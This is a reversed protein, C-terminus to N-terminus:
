PEGAPRRSGSVRDQHGGTTAIAPALSSGAARPVRLFRDLLIWGMPALLITVFTLLSGFLSYLIVQSVWAYMLARHFTPRRSMWSYMRTYLIGLGFMQLVIGTMGFDGYMPGLLTAPQGFGIFESGLIRRFFMDSSENHYGPLLSTLAGFSLSGHQFPVYRPIREIIQGLTAVPTSIYYYLYYLSSPDFQLDRLTSSTYAMTDRAWGLASAAVFVVAALLLTMGIKTRRCLYHRAVLVTAVPQLLNGRSGLTLILASTVALALWLMVKTTLNQNTTWLRTALFVLVTWAGLVFFTQTITHKLLDLRAEGPNSRLGPIGVQFGVALYALFTLAGVALLLPAFRQISWDDGFQLHSANVGHRWDRAAAVGALYCVLGLIIAGYPPPDPEDEISALGISFWVVYAIPFAIWPAFLDHRSLWQFFRWLGWIGVFAGFLIELVINFRAFPRPGLCAAVLWCLLVVAAPISWLLMRWKDPDGRASREPQLIM